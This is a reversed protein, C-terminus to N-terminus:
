CRVSARQIETKESESSRFILALGRTLGWDSDKVEIGKGYEPSTSTLVRGSITETMLVVGM